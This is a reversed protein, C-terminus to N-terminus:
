CMSDIFKPYNSKSPGASMLFRTGKGVETLEAGLKDRASQLRNATTACLDNLRVAQKLADDALRDIEEWRTADTKERHQKWRSSLQIVKSNMQGIRGFCDRKELISKALSSCQSDDMETLLALANGVERYDNSISKFEAEFNEM